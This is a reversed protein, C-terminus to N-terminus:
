DKKQEALWELLSVERGQWQVPQGDYDVRCDDNLMPIWAFHGLYEFPEGDPGKFGEHIDEIKDWFTFHVNQAGAAMLRKYTAEVTEQPKVVPDNKAHTFWIPKEQIRAIDEERITDDYLAECVPFAAAFLEPYDILMRMTMFGGNSDGGIYVRNRDIGPNRDLFDVICAKLAESYM